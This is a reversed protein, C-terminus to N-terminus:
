LQQHQGQKTKLLVFFLTSLSLICKLELFLFGKPLLISSIISLVFFIRFSLWYLVCFDLNLFFEKKHDRKVKWGQPEAWEPRLLFLSNQKDLCRSFRFAFLEVWTTRWCCEQWYVRRQEVPGVIGSKSSDAWGEDLVCPSKWFAMILVARM